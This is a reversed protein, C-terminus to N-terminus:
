IPREWVVNITNGCWCAAYGEVAMNRHPVCVNGECLYGCPCLLRMRYAAPKTCEPQKSPTVECRVDDGTIHDLTDDEPIVATM